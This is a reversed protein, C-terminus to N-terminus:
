NIQNKLELSKKDMLLKLEDNKLENRKLENEILKKGNNIPLFGDLFINQLMSFLNSCVWYLSLATPVQTGITMFSAVGLRMLNTLLMLPIRSPTYEYNTLARNKSVSASGLLIRRNWELNFMMFTGYIIPLIGYQDSILLDPFWLCGENSLQKMDNHDIILGDMKFNSSGCISRISISLTIWLPFQILPLLLSKYRQCNNLKFLKKQFLNTQKKSLHTIQEYTLNKKRTDSIPRATLNARYIPFSASVLPALSTQKRVRLRNWIALPLTVTTRFGITVIPIVAYWPLGTSNHIYQLSDCCPQIVSVVLTQLDIQSQRTSHFSRVNSKIALKTSTAFSRKLM